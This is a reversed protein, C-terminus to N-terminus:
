PQHDTWWTDGADDLWFRHVGSETVTLGFRQRPPKGTDRWRQHLREVDDWLQHAGHQAVTQTTQEICAWSGDDALLWRQPGTDPEFGLSTVGPLRLAALMGFDPHDLEDAGVPTPRAHM